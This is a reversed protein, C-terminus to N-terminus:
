FYSLVVRSMDYYAKLSVKSTNSNRMALATVVTRGWGFGLQLQGPASRVDPMSAVLQPARELLCVREASTVDSMEVVQGVSVYRIPWYQVLTGCM